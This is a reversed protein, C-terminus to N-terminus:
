LTNRRKDFFRLLISSGVRRQDVFQLNQLDAEFFAGEEVFVTGHCALLNLQDIRELTKKGLEKFYPPDIYILDFSAEKEALKDLTTTWSIPYLTTEKEVHLSSINQRLLKIAARGNEVFTVHKAGRSLAEFGMAGSGAFLDLMVADEIEHQCINFVAERMASLTPRTNSKPVSLRMNKYKGAIIRM